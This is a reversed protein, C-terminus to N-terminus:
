PCHRVMSLFSVDMITSKRLLDASSFSHTCVFESILRISGQPVVCLVVARARPKSGPISSLDYEIPPSRGQEIHPSLPHDLRESASVFTAYVIHTTVHHFHLSM